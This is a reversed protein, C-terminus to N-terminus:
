SNSQNNCKSEWIYSSEIMEKLSRKPNWKLKKSALSIDAWVEPLDGSRKPVIKYNIKKKLVEEFQNLIEKVSYGRGKGLNYSEYNNDNKDETLRKLALVHAEAIDMVHIYDRVATGDKTDYDDGFISFEKIEGSYVKSILPFLHTSMQNPKEGILGSDHAGVPNFYRLSIVNIGENTNSQDKLIQEGMIKTRGYPSSTTTIESDETLPLKILDGYVTCSSSFVIKNVSFLSMVDLVTVLNTINNRYYKLPNNVSENVLLYAALHVVSSISHTSFVKELKEKDGISFDYLKFSSNTIKEIEEKISKRSNSLDDIVIVEFGNNILEVVTHSGIYGLGGTVLITEKLKM